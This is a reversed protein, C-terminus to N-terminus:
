GADDMEMETIMAMRCANEPLSPSALTAAAVAAWSAMAPAAAAAQSEAM